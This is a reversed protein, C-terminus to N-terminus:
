SFDMDVDGFCTGYIAATKFKDGQQILNCPRWPLFRYTSVAGGIVAETFDLGCIDYRDSDPGDSDSSWFLIEGASVHSEADCCRICVKSPDVQSLQHQTVLAIYRQGYKVLVCSGCLQVPFEATGVHHILPDVFRLLNESLSRAHVWVGNFEVSM